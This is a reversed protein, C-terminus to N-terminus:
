NNLELNKEVYKTLNSLSNYAFEEVFVSDGHVVYNRYKRLQQLEKITGNDLLENCQIIRLAQYFSLVPSNNSYKQAYNILFKELKNFEQMFQSFYNTGQNNLYNNSKEIANKEKVSIKKIKQPDTVKFVFRIIFIITAITIAISNYLVIDALLGPITSLNNGIIMNSLCFIISIGTLVGITLLSKRFELKLADIADVLTDDKESSSKLRDELFIYGTITLGFLTAVVQSLTSSLYLLQNENIDLISFLALTILAIEIVFIIISKIFVRFKKSM